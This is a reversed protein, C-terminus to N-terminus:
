LLDFVEVSAVGTTDDVGRVIATYPGPLLPELIASELDNTPALGTNEIESEQTDRWNDNFAIVEGNSDHLELTADTLPDSVGASGLSPGIARVLINASVAETGTIFGGILVNDGTDVFGRTSLNALKSNAATDLDYIEVLGTGTGGDKGELIATYAGPSLTTVIAAENPDTPALGTAEIETQQTDQWNDNTTIVGISDHLELVPDALVSTLMFQALSPGLGRILVAKDDTGSIIFGGDLINDGTLVGARTSINLSQSLQAEFAGTDSNDGGEPPMIAPDDIPRTRSRQDTTIGDIPGGQDIAPSGPLLANTSTPGGNDQLPGLMPDIPSAATGVQDGTTAPFSASSVNGVLNYGLSAFGGALDERGNAAVICNVLTFEGGADYIGDGGANPNANQTMTTSELLVTGSSYIGGGPGVPPDFSGNVHAGGSNSSITGGTNNSVTSNIITMAGGDNYIGGAGYSSSNYSVTSATINLTGRNYIGGVLSGPETAINNTVSCADLNLVGENHIAGTELGFGGSITVGSITVAVGSNIQITGLAFGIQCQITLQRAGAGAVILDKDIILADSTVAITAPLVLDFTITDGPMADLIAQRLTGAGADATSTVTITDCFASSASLFLALGGLVFRKM